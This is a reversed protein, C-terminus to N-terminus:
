EGEGEIVVDEPYLSIQTYENVYPTKGMFHEWIHPKVYATLRACGNNIAYLMLERHIEEHSMSATVNTGAMMAILLESYGDPHTVVRTICVLITGGERYSKIDNYVWLEMAGQLILKSVIDVGGSHEDTAVAKHYFDIEEADLEYPMSM